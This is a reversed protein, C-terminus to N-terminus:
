RSPDPLVSAPASAPTPRSLTPAAEAIVREKLEALRSSPNGAGIGEVHVGVKM